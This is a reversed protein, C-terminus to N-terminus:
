LEGEHMKILNLVDEAYPEDQNVVYYKPETNRGEEERMIGIKRVIGDLVALESQTSVKVVDEIKLVGFKM